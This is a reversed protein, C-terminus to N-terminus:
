EYAISVIELEEEGSPFKFRVRQGVQANLLAKAIPSIWSVWNRDLDTEDVGVIRYNSFAGNRERVAVTAGFRVVDDTAVPPSVIVATHLVEQLQEIRQQLIQLDHKADSSEDALLHPREKHLLQDLEHRLQAAGSFTLYNRAGPPLPSVPRPRLPTDPLDSEKTFAKSM